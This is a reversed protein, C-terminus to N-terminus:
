TRDGQWVYLEDGFPVFGWHELFKPATAERKDCVAFVPLGRQRFWELLMRGGRVILRPHSRIEPGAILWAVIKGPLLYYGAAGLVRDGEVAAIARQWKQVPVGQLGEIMERTAPVIRIM